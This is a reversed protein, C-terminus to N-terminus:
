TARRAWCARRRAAAPPAGSRRIRSSCRARGSTSRGTTSSVRGGLQVARRPQDDGQPHLRAGGLLPGDRRGPEPQVGPIRLARGQHLGHRAPRALDRRHHLAGRRLAASRAPPRDSLRAGPAAREQDARALVSLSVIVTSSMCTATQHHENVMIDYGLEDALMWEDYYRHFLDGAIKPDLKRNPLNVRLSGNHDNWAPYYPQETFQYVQM